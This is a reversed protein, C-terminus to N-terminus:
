SPASRCAGFNAQALIRCSTGMGGGPNTCTRSFTLMYLNAHGPVPIAGAQARANAIIDNQESIPFDHNVSTTWLGNPLARSARHDWRGSCPPGLRVYSRCATNASVRNLEQVISGSGISTRSCGPTSELLAHSDIRVREGKLGPPQLAAGSHPLIAASACGLIVVFLRM